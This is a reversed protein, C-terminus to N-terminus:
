SSQEKESFSEKLLIFNLCAQELWNTFSRVLLNNGNGALYAAEEQRMKEM